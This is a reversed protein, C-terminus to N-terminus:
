TLAIKADIYYTTSAKGVRIRAWLMGAVQLQPNNATNLLITLVFPSWGAGSGGGAWTSGDSSVASNSALASSKTTTAFVGTPASATGLYEVELWIEDNRPLTGSNITGYISVTVNTATRTNWIAFPEARFPMLWSVNATTAIKRSQGQGSPDSAGTSRIITTETTETGEYKYRSSKYGTGATDCNILQIAHEPVPPTPVTTSANLKCDKALLFGTHNNVNYSALAGTLQSLDLAELTIISASSAVQLGYTILNAPVSSGSALITGTNQWKWQGSGPAILQATTSFRVTCNNWIVNEGATGGAALLFIASSNAAATNDLRFTCNDFIQVTGGTPTILLNSTSSSAGNGPRLTLGYFYMCGGNITINNATSVTVSAGATLGTPPIAGTHDFSLTSGMNPLTSAPNWTIATTQTEAHNDAVYVTNGTNNAATTLARYWTSAYANGLRAHPAALNAPKNTTSNGITTWTVTNDTTNGTGGSAGATSFAAWTPEAGNGATGATTCLLIKTGDGSVIIQGLTVATNKVNTWVPGSTLDGNVAPQGTVEEWKVNTNDTVQGGRTTPWTPETTASTQATGALSFYCVFVRESGVSPTTAPRILAGCATATNIAWATVAAYGVSSVYWANDTLAM